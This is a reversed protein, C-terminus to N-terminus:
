PCSRREAFSKRLLLGLWQESTPAVDHTARSPTGKTFCLLIMKVSSNLTEVCYEASHRDISEIVDTSWADRFAM